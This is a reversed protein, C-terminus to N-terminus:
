VVSKRSAVNMVFEALSTHDKVDDVTLGKVTTEFNQSLVNLIEADIKKGIDIASIGDIKVKATWDLKVLAGSVTPLVADKVKITIFYNNTPCKDNLCPVLSTRTLTHDYQLDPDVPMDHTRSVYQRAYIQMNPEIESQFGCAQCRLSMPQKVENDNENDGQNSVFGYLNDCKTCFNM